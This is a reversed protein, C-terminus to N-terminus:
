ITKLYNYIDKKVINLDDNSLKYKINNFIHDVYGKEKLIALSEEYNYNFIFALYKLLSDSNSSIDTINILKHQKFTLLCRQSFPITMDLSIIKGLSVFHLISIKDADMLVQLFKNDKPVILKNHYLISEKIIDIYDEIKYKKLLKIIEDNSFLINVSQEAHDIKNSDNIKNFYHNEFFRGLDHFISITYMIMLSKVDFNKQIAITHSFDSVELTHLYKRKDNDDFPQYPLLKKEFLKLIDTKFDEFNDQALNNITSRGVSCYYIHHKEAENLSFCNRGDYVRPEKMLRSFLKIDMKSIEDWNTIILAAECDKITDEINEYYSINKTNCVKDFHERFKEIGKPDYAKVLAGNQLLLEINAFAPSYRVDDTDAKYTLGLVAIKKNYLNNDFDKNLEQYMILNQNENIEIIDKILNSKGFQYFARTDKPLCSGGFGLGPNMYESGIRKDLGMSKIIDEINANCKKCLNAIENIYSLKLALFTNSAYKTIEASNRDTEILPVNYPPKLLPEYIKKIIKSAKLSNSGIIIRDAYLTDNIASGQSLFEPNSVVEVNYKTNIKFYDEVLQATGVPVTSKIVVICDKTINLSIQKCANFIYSLEPLGNAREPTGVALFIVDVNNFAIKSNSTYLIREKNQQMLKTIGNEFIPSQGKNLMSIKSKDMDYCCVDNGIHALCVGTVLGVYGIGVIGIKM